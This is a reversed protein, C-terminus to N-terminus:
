GTSRAADLTQDLLVAITMPGVGGPVPTIHRARSAAGAFEVDGVNGPNYGADIVVADPKIWAGRILEPRGVAAIVIDADRVADALERTKSHCFTVTADRALLLMGVPRGLIPSRGVVVTKVGALAVDYRDLLRLIGGPTASHFGGEGVGRRSASNELSTSGGCWSRGARPAPPEPAQREDAKTLLTKPGTSNAVRGSRYRTTMMRSQLAENQAGFHWVRSMVEWIRNFLRRPNSNGATTMTTTVQSTNQIACPNGVAHLRM